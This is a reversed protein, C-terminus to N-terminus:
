SVRSRSVRRLAADLRGFQGDTSQDEGGAFEEMAAFLFLRATAVETRKTTARGDPLTLARMVPWLREVVDSAPVYVRQTLDVSDASFSRVVLRRPQTELEVWEDM